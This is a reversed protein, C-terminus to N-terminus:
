KRWLISGLHDARAAPAAQRSRVTGPLYLNGLKRLLKPLTGHNKGYAAELLTLARQLLPEARANM